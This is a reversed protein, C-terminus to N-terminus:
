QSLRSQPIASWKEPQALATFGIQIALATEAGTTSARRLIRRPPGLVTAANHIVAISPKPLVRATATM